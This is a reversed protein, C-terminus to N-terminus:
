SYGASHMNDTTVVIMDALSDSPENNLMQDLKVEESEESSISSSSENGQSMAIFISSSMPKQIFTSGRVGGSRKVSNNAASFSTCIGFQQQAM